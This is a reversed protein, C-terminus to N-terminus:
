NNSLEKCKQQCELILYILTSREFKHRMRAIIELREVQDLGIKRSLGRKYEILNGHLHQNCRICQGNVNLFNYRTPGYTSAMYHGANMQDLPKIQGCSICKFYGDQSDRLRIYRNFWETAPKHLEKVGMKAYRTPIKVQEM